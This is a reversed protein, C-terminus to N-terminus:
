GMYRDWFDEMVEDHIEFFWKEFDEGLKYKIASRSVRLTSLMTAINVYIRTYELLNDLTIDFTLIKTEYINRIEKFIKDRRKKKPNLM